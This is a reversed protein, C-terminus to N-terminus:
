GTGLKSSASSGKLTDTSDDGEGGGSCVSVYNRGPQDWSCPGSLQELIRQVLSQITREQPRTEWAEVAWRRQAPGAGGVAGAPQLRLRGESGADEAGWVGAKAVLGNHCRLAEGGKGVM